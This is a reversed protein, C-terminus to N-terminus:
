TKQKQFQPDNRARADELDIALQTWKAALDTFRNKLDTDTTEAALETCRHAYKRCENPDGPMAPPPLEQGYATHRALPYRSILRNAPSRLV